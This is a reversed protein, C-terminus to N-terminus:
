ATAPETELVEPARQGTAARVWDLYGCRWEYAFGVVIPLLFFLMAFLPLLAADHGGTVAGRYIVAWPWLLAIEVDFIIFFLAVIYFRLDFQVWSEGIAPEGCEYAAQKEPHDLQPRILKGVFLAAIIFGVGAVTFLLIGFVLEVNTDGRTITDAAALLGPM